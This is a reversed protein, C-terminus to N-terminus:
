IRGLLRWWAAAPAVDHCAACEVLDLGMGYLRNICTDCYVRPLWGCTTDAGHQKLIRWRAVAPTDGTPTHGEHECPLAPDFDLLLLTGVEVETLTAATM